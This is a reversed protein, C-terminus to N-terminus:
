ETSSRSSLPWSRPAVPWETLPSPTFDTGPVTSTTNSLGSYRVPSSAEASIVKGSGTSSASNDRSRSLTSAVARSDLPASQSRRSFSM